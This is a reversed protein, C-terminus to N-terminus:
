KKNVSKRKRLALLLAASLVLPVGIIASAGISSKCGSKGGDSSDSGTKEWQAYFVGHGTISSYDGSWGKLTYGDRKYVPPTAATGYAVEQTSEGSELTAEERSLFRVTYMEPTWLAKIVVNDTISDFEGSWGSFIHGTKEFTPATAAETYKVQQVTEGDTLTGGDGDFTVTFVAKEWKASFTVNQLVRYGDGASYVNTGDTWGAFVYGHRVPIQEPLVTSSGGAVKIAQPVNSTGSESTFTVTFQVATGGVQEFSDSGSVTENTVTLTGLKNAGLTADYGNVNAFLISRAASMTKEEKDRIRIYVNYEGAPIDSPLRFNMGYNETTKSLINRVDLDTPCIYTNSGSVLMINALKENVVNGFGVNEISGALKFTGGRAVSASLKSERLVLRYGLHATIYDFQTKGAYVPDSGTYANRKWYNVVSDDWARNLYTTHTVFAEQEVHGANNWNGVVQGSPATLDKVVEGGYLTHTAQNRLWAIEETRNDFTGLDTSSGLYGDNYLGVRYADTGKVSVFSSMNDATLNKGYKENAWYRYYLPRRVSVTRCEPVAKLWAEVLRFYTHAGSNALATSHQEGWPGFMGTEVSVIVDINRSLMEGLQAIHTEILDMSPENNKYTGSPDYSFRIIVSRGAKRIIALTSEIATLAADSIPGDTGGANTSFEELGMRMHIIGYNACWTNLTTEAWLPMSEDAPVTRGAAQYFGRDPNIINETSETYNLGSDKMEADAVTQAGAASAASRGVAHPLLSLCFAACLVTILIGLRRKKMSM